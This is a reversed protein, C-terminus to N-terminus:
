KDFHIVSRISKGEHMLDFAENVQELGMTHTIFDDLKFEGALYQEVIKPLQSRGKVGGFASGRWVRGTVLQFPRTSIEQGAGAVGIIVSEGWGKHCCELASRMVNVNGICEFSYDVGGDTMEVIVEQIPKDFNKPNICDTAGLKRALEFKSENIDIAIIRSAKAMTAGIIASLGIGGLGFIAVTAGEEVKATNMVAGMGTTVGCGLLCIEELPATKNVKALSIEPLVTYESFTSCGMYHFIPQGDKYFRTTGDPMLGKGQTTRIKQCLNTKGSLCFKCEGCEPTYLPIVHDGVQVSTVGEGVQEVIGGGEHGLIAPFVGEPDDGSLTFADTHCVGTAVIRVLVEGAKPLMVDVEEIKLPQGPGWAVAAKSKIFQPKENSM